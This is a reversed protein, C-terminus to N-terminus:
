VQPILRAQQTQTVVWCRYDSLLQKLLRQKMRLLVSRLLSNGAAELIPKPTLSFPPPLEVLVELDAKGQLGDGTSFQHPSLYGQLNLQFHQNVYDVGLIQCGLSRLYITGNSQAWVKMDVIPQINLSMFTVPRMQLRFVEDTLIQMCSPEVLANVLRQPQRLYHQIPVPQELIAIEVSQSATFKITM